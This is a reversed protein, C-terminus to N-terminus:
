QAKPREKITHVNSNDAQLAPLDHDGNINELSRAQFEWNESLQFSQEDIKIPETM